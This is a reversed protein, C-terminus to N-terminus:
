RSRFRFLEGCVSCGYRSMADDFEGIAKEAERSLQRLRERDEFPLDTGLGTESDALITRAEKLSEVADGVGAVGEQVVRGYAAVIDGLEYDRSTRRERGEVVFLDAESVHFDLVEYSWDGVDLFLVRRVHMWAKTNSWLVGGLDSLFSLEADNLYPNRQIDQDLPHLQLVREARARREEMQAEFTAPIDPTPSPVPTATPTMAEITAAVRQEVVSASLLPDVGPTGEVLGADGNDFVMQQSLPDVSSADGGGLMTLGAVVIVLLIALGIGIFVLSRGSLSRLPEIVRNLVDRM